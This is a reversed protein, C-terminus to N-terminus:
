EASFDELEIGAIDHIYAFLLLEITIFSIAAQLFARSIAIRLFHVLPIPNCYKNIYNINDIINRPKKLIIRKM